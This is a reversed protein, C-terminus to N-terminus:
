EPQLGIEKVLKGWAVRQARIYEGTAEPTEAGDTFMGFERLKQVIEPDKLVKDLERNLQQVVPAPTGTPAVIVFWGTFDFGPFTEAVAPVEEYGPTRKAASVAIARLDGSKMRPSASPVALIVVQTRGAITDQVGEPMKAYPILLMRTGALKNIWEGLMGSFNRPGDSAFALKGPQAKDLAILEPLTKAPVKPNVLVFFHIKGVMAVPTFDRDPDYPLSKFTFPNSVLSAATAFFFTYGDAPSRAVAQAGIVNGAGPRTDVLFQQGLARTIRDALLRAVIDPTGGAAQSVIFKVPKGPWTQASAPVMASFVAALLLTRLAHKMVNEM